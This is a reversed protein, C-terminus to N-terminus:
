SRKIFLKILKKTVIRLLSMLLVGVMVNLMTVFFPSVKVERYSSAISSFPPLAVGVKQTERDEFRRSVVNLKQNSDLVFTEKLVQTSVLQKGESISALPGVSPNAMYTIELQLESSQKEPDSVIKIASSEAISSGSNLCSIEHVAQTGYLKSLALTKKAMFSYHTLKPVEPLDVVTSESYTSERSFAGNRLDLTSQPSVHGRDAELEPRSSPQDQEM